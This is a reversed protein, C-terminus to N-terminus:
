QIDETGPRGRGPGPKGICLVFEARDRAPADEKETKRITAADHTLLPFRLELSRYFPDPRVRTRARVLPM